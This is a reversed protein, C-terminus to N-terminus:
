AGTSAGRPHAPTISIGVACPSTLVAHWAHLTFADGMPFREGDSARAYCCSRLLCEVPRLVQVAAAEVVALAAALARQQQICQQMYQLWAAMARSQLLRRRLAGAQQLMLATHQAGDGAAERWQRLARARRSFAALTESQERQVCACSWTDVLLMCDSLRLVLRFRLIVHMHMETDTAVQVGHLLTAVYV